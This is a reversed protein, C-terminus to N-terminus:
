TRSVSLEMLTLPPRSWLSSRDNPVTRALHRALLGPWRLLWGVALLTLAVLCTLAM